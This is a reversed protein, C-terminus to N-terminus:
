CAAFARQAQLWQLAVITKADQLKGRAVMQFAHPVPIEVTEIYEHESDLGGGTGTKHRDDVEGFFLHTRETTTGPSSYFTMVRRLRAPRYGVEEVLESRAVLAPTKGPPVTGAPIELIWGGDGRLWTAYRFQRILVVTKRDRNLLLIAAGDGRELNLRVVEPSLGGSPIEHRLWARDLKFFGDFLRETKKIQVKM